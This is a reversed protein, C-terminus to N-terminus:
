WSNQVFVSTNRTFFASKKYEQSHSPDLSQILQPFSLQATVTPLHSLDTFLRLICKYNVVALLFFSTWHITSSETYLPCILIYHVICKYHVIALLFFLNKCAKWKNETRQMFIKAMTKTMTLCALIKMQHQWDTPYEVPVDETIKRIRSWDSDLVLSGGTTQCESPKSFGLKGLILKIPGEVDKDRGQSM